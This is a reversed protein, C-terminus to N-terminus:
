RNLHILFVDQNPVPADLTVNGYAGQFGTSGQTQDSAVTDYDGLYLPNIFADTAHIPPWIRSDVRADKWAAGYDRSVGCYRSIKYNLPDDRRDYWCVGVTGTSDVAAGPQFHDIGFKASSELPGSNVRVPPCWSKGGDSSRSILVNASRYLGFPSELDPQSHFRGDEWTVYLDGDTKTGSRDVALSGTLTRFNGQLAFGDGTAIINDIKSSPGFSVAHDTSRAIRLERTDGVLGNPLREWEVYALGQSDVVLQSFQVLPTNPDVPSACTEDVVTPTSWTGGGDTSHVIEIGYRVDNPCTTNTFDIDTYSVYINQPNKPDVASWDKDLFHTLGDKSVAPAPDGWTFGGDTSKSLVVVSTPADLTGSLAVQSYYFTNADTCNVVPDGLLFNNPNSGPNIYGIDRFTSGADTSAGAGSFSLGGPGSLLSELLSGSDNFGAVVGSGCWATSTESQTFGGMISLLFDSSPDSVPIVGSSVVPHASGRAELAAQIKALKAANDGKGFGEQLEPWARTLQLLNLAGGSLAKQLNPPLKGIAQQKIDGMRTQIANLREPSPGTQAQALCVLLYLSTVSVGTIRASLM